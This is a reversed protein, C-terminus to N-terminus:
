FVLQWGLRVFSKECALIKNMSFEELSNHDWIYCHRSRMIHKPFIFALVEHFHMKLNRISIWMEPWFNKGTSKKSMFIPIPLPWFYLIPWLFFFNLSWPEVHSCLNRPFTQSPSQQFWISRQMWMSLAQQSCATFIVQCLNRCLPNSLLKIPM